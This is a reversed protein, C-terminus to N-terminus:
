ATHLICIRHLPLFCQQPDPDADFHFPPPRLHDNQLMTPDLEPLFHTIPDPDPDFQFLTDPDPDSHFTPDPDADFHFAPYTVSSPLLLNNTKLEQCHKSFLLDCGLFMMILYNM